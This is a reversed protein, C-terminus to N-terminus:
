VRSYSEVILKANINAPLESSKPLDVMKVLLDPDRSLWSPMDTRKKVLEKVKVSFKDALKITDGVKLQISPITVRRGNVSFHGHSVLQRAGSRTPALGARYVANDLRRELLQMLLVDTAGLKKKAEVYYRKFQREMGGYVHKAKQKELLQQGFETIKRRGGKPGHQGSPYNRRTVPCKDTSCLKQGVRRCLHHKPGLHRAM